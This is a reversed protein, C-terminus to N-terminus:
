DSGRRGILFVIPDNLGTLINRIIAQRINIGKIEFNVRLKLIFHFELDLLTEAGNM